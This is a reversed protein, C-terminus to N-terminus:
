TLEAVYITGTLTLEDAPKTLPRITIRTQTASCHWGSGEPLWLKEGAMVNWCDEHLIEETGEKAVTTNMSEAAFGVAADSADLARPTVANGGSGSTTWGRSVKYPIIEAQEDKFDSSQGLFLGYIEVPKNTAPTVEWWDVIETEASKELRCTYCRRM